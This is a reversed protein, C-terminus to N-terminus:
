EFVPNDLGRSKIMKLLHPLDPAKTLSHGKVLPNM